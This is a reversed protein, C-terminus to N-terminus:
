EAVILARVASIQFLPPSVQIRVGSSIYLIGLALDTRIKKKAKPIVGPIAEPIRVKKM